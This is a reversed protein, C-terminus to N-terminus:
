LEPLCALHIVSFCVFKSMSRSDIRKMGSPKAGQPGTISANPVSPLFSVGGAGVTLVPAPHAPPGFSTVADLKAQALEGKARSAAGSQSLFMAMTGHMVCIISPM